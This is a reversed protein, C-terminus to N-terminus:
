AAKKIINKREIFKRVTLECVDFVLAMQKCTKGQKYMSKIKDYHEDLKFEIQPKQVKVGISVLYQYISGYPFGLFDGIESISKGLELMRLISNRHPDIKKDKTKYSRKAKPYDKANVGMEELKKDLTNIGIGLKKTIDIKFYGEKLLELIEDEQGELKYHSNKSGVPRGIYKGDAKARAHAQKTRMSNSERESQAGFSLVSAIVMSLATNELTYSDNITKVHVGKQTLLKLVNLNSVMDRGIRSLETAIITDGNKVSILLDGFNRKSPDAAGSIVDQVWEDIQIGMQKCYSRIKFRQNENDQHDKSVRLYGYIM